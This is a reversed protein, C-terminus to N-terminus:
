FIILLHFFAHEEPLANREGLEIIKEDNIIKNNIAGPM